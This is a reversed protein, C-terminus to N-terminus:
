YYLQINIRIFFHFLWNLITTMSSRYTKPIKNLKISKLKVSRVRDIECQEIRFYYYYNGCTIGWKM